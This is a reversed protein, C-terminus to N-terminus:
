RRSPRMGSSSPEGSRDAAPSAPRPASDRAVLDVLASTLGLSFRGYRGSRWERWIPRVRERRTESLNARLALHRHMDDVSAVTDRPLADVQELRRRLAEAARFRSDVAARHDALLTRVRAYVAAPTRPLEPTGIQQGPHLRYSFLREDIAVWPGTAMALLAIWGDHQLWANAGGIDEPIPLLVDILSRRIALSCGAIQSRRMLRAFLGGDPRLAFAEWLSRGLPRGDEDVLDGDSFAMTADPRREFARALRELKRPAWLDDQDCLVVVDHSCAGIAREFARASGARASGGIIRVPFPSAAAFEALLEPTADESCDDYVVIEDPSVTQAAISELQKPLFAAGNFTAM